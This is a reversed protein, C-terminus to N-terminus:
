SSPVVPPPIGTSTNCLVSTNRLMVDACSLGTIATRYAAIEPSSAQDAALQTYDITPLAVADVLAALCVARLLTDAVV